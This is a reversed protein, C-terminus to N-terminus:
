KEQLPLPCFAFWAEFPFKDLCWHADRFTELWETVYYWLNILTMINRTWPDFFFKYSAHISNNTMEYILIVPWWSRLTSRVQLSALSFSFRSGHTEVKVTILARSRIAHREYCYVCACLSGARRSSPVSFSLSVAIDFGVGFPCFCLWCFMLYPLTFPVFM